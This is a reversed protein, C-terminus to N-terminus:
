FDYRADDKAKPKRVRKIATQARLTEGLRDAAPATAAVVADLMQMQMLASAWTGVSVSPDGAELRKYTGTSTVVRAAAEAITWRRSQRAARLHQGLRKLPSELSPLLSANANRKM